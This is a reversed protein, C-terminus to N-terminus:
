LFTILVGAAFIAFNLTMSVMLFWMQNSREMYTKIKIVPNQRPLVPLTLLAENRNDQTYFCGYNQLNNSFMKCPNTNQTIPLVNYVGMLVKKCNDLSLWM